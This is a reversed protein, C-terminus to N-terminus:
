DQALYELCNPTIGFSKMSVKLIDKFRKKQGVQSCKGKSLESYLLKKPLHHENIYVVHSDWHLQSQILITYISPLSALTLVETNPIHKQLTIGLIKRLFTVHFHNLKKIHRQYTTWTEWGYLITTLIVARYVKIKTAESIGRWNWMNRNLRDFAASAKALRTKVKDDM